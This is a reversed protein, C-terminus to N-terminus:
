LKTFDVDFKSLERRGEETLYWRTARGQGEKMLWGQKVCYELFFAGLAYPNIPKENENAMGIGSADEANM